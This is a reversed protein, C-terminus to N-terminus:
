IVMENNNKTDVEVDKLNQHCQSIRPNVVLMKQIKTKQSSQFGTNPDETTELLILYTRVLKKQRMCPKKDVLSRITIVKPPMSTFLRLRAGLTVTKVVQVLFDLDVFKQLPLM